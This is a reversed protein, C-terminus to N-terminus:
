KSVNSLFYNWIRGDSDSELFLYWGKFPVHVTAKADGTQKEFRVIASFPSTSKNKKYVADSGFIELISLQDAGKVIVRRDILDICFDRKKQWNDGINRYQDRLKVIDDHGERRQANALLPWGFVCAVPVMLLLNKAIQM